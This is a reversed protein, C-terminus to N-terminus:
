LSVFYSFAFHTLSLLIGNGVVCAFCTRVRVKDGVKFRKRIQSPEARFTDDTEIDKVHYYSPTSDQFSTGEIRKIEADVWTLAFVFVSQGPSFEDDQNNAIRSQLSNLFLIIHTFLRFCDMTLCGSSVRPNANDFKKRLKGKTVGELIEGSTSKVKYSLSEGQSVKEQIEAEVWKQCLLFVNEGPLYERADDNWLLLKRNPDGSESISVIKGNPLLVSYEFDLSSEVLVPQVSKIFGPYVTNNERILVHPGDFKNPRSVHFLAGEPIKCDLNGGSSQMQLEYVWEGKFSQRCVKFIGQLNDHHKSLVPHIGVLEDTHFKPPRLVGSPDVLFTDHTGDKKKTKEMFQYKFIGGKPVHGMVQRIEKGQIGLYVSAGVPFFIKRELVNPYKAGNYEITYM